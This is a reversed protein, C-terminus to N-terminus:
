IHEEVQKKKYSNLTIYENKYLIYENNSKEKSFIRRRRNNIIITKKYKYM